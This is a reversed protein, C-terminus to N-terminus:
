DDPVLAPSIALRDGVLQRRATRVAAPRGAATAEDFLAVALSSDFTLGRRGLPAPGPVLIAEAVIVTPSPLQLPRGSGAPPPSPAAGGPAKALLTKLAAGVGAKRVAELRKPQGPLFKEPLCLIVALGPRQSLRSTLANVLDIGGSAATLADIAPTEIY